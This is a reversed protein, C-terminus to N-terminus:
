EGRRGFLAAAVLAVLAVGVGFGPLGTSSRESVRVSREADGAGIRVGGAPLTANATVTTEAGADVAVTRTAVADGDVRFQIEGRAPWDADNRVTAVLRVEDGARPSSPDVDIATVTPAAPERVSVVGAVDAVSLEYSGAADFTTGLRVTATEGPDLAVTRAAAREGDVTLEVAFEDARGGDNEVAVAATLREGPVLTPPTAVTRNRYPGDVRYSDVSARLMAPAADFADAHEEASWADPVADTTAHERAFARVEPGGSANVADYFADATVRDRENLSRFTIAFSRRRDSAARTRYDIAGVALAGKVYNAGNDRWTAPDDMVTGAYPSRAGHSLHDRFARFGVRGQEFSLLASYYEASAEILWETEATTGYDQRTHVYEHIWVNDPSDLGSDARVWADDPGTQVGRAAWAVNTPAAVFFSEENDGGVRLRDRADAISDLVAEPSARMSASAPVVLRVTEDGAQRVREEHPGLYAIEGGTAGEGDVVTRRDLPVEKGRYRWSTGVQPVRVVAWDGTDAFVYGAEAAAGDLHPDGPEAARAEVGGREDDHSHDHGDDADGTATPVAPVSENGTVNASRRADGTVNAPKDFTVSPRSTSGDWAYERGDARDFGRTSVVSADEPLVVRVETVSDPVDFRVTARVSGPDDPTLQLSVTRVLPDAATSPGGVATTAPSRPGTGAAGSPDAAGALGGTAPLACVVLLTVLLRRIM